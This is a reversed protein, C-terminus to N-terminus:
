LASVSGCCERRVTSTHAEEDGGAPEDREENEDERDV